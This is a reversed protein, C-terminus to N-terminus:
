RVGRLAFATELSRVVLEVCEDTLLRGIEVTATKAPSLV